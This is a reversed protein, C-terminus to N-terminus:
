EPGATTLEDATEPRLNMRLSAATLENADRLAPFLTSWLGTVVMAGVGGAVTARVAGLWQATLGSEFEGLENSAGLFLSNVASVRGRMEPPTALQLVSSRIVVSIMDAAGAIALAVLSLALNRSLGFVVTATGFLAVSVFLRLGARKRIPYRALLLSVVLAGAAPAARLMGLGQPGTHLIEQAFIPMLATAGGLLVVFLDLSFSGMLIPSRRVFQFGALVVKLSAERKEMRGLRVSLSGILVLFIVLSCLTAVYVVGAGALVGRLPLTFLLGGLAPGGINALQFIAAGWTVANVFHGEPVLHPILASSAPGSFSRGTGILFLVGYVLGVNRLGLMAIILLATTCIVQLSYCILIIQRRDYRDAAHGAPLLFLLGPLFLALGTYGLDLARHTISYVQWAVAVTQAEAGIIVAMRALQYRRFDRSGFAALGSAPISGHPKGSDSDSDM